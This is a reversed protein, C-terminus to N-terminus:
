KTAVRQGCGAIPEVYDVVPQWDSPSLPGEFQANIYYRRCPQADLTFVKRTGQWDVRLPVGQLTLEHKGSEIKIPENRAVPFAGKGDITEVITPSRNLDTRYYRAGSVESWSPEWTQCGALALPVLLLTTTMTRM